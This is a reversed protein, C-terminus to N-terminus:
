SIGPTLLFVVANYRGLNAPTFAGADETTDVALGNRRGLERVTRLGAPISAHRFGATKTFVLIRPGRAQPAAALAAGIVLTGITLGVIAFARARYV